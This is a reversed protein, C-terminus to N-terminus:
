NGGFLNRIAQGTWNGIAAIPNATFQAVGAAGQALTPGMQRLLDGVDEAGNVAPSGVGYSGVVTDKMSGNTNDATVYASPYGDSYAGNAGVVTIRNAGEPLLRDLDSSVGLTDQSGYQDYAQADIGGNSGSGSGNGSSNARKQYNRYAQNYRNAWKNQENQMLQNLASLQAATKLGAIRSETQPTQYRSKIYDSPGHLGGYQADLDSGLAHAAEGIQATNEGQLQRYTDIFSTQADRSATPSVEMLGEDNITIVNDMDENYGM